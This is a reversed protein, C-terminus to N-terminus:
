DAETAWQEFDGSRPVGTAVFLPVRGKLKGAAELADARLRCEAFDYGAIIVVEPDIGSELKQLRVKMSRNM